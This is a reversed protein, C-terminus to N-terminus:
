KRLFQQSEDRTQATGEASVHSLVMGQFTTDEWKEAQTSHTYIGM